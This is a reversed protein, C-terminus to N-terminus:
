HGPKKPGPSLGRTGNSLLSPPGWLWYPHPPLFFFNKWKKEQSKSIHSRMQYNSDNSFAGGLLVLAELFISSSLNHALIAKSINEYWYKCPNTLKLTCWLQCEGGWFDNFWAELQPRRPLPAVYHHIFHIASSIPAYIYTAYSPPLIQGCCADESGHFDWTKCQIM